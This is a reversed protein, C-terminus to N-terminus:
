RYQKLQVAPKEGKIRFETPAYKNAEEQESILLNLEGLIKDYNGANQKIGFKDDSNFRSPIQLSTGGIQFSPTFSYNRNRNYTEAVKDKISNLATLASVVSARGQPTDPQNKIWEMTEKIVDMNSSLNYPNSLDEERGGVIGYLSSPFDDQIDDANKVYKEGDWYIGYNFNNLADEQKWREIQAQQYPTMAQNAAIQQNQLRENAWITYGSLATADPMGLTVGKYGKNNYFDLEEQSIRKDTFEKDQFDRNWKNHESIEKNHSQTEGFQDLDLQHKLGFQRTLEMLNRNRYDNDDTRQQQRENLERGRGYNDSFGQSAQIMLALRQPTM